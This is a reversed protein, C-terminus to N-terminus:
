SVRVRPDIFLSTAIGVAVRGRLTGVYAPTVTSETHLKFFSSNAADNFWDSSILSSTAQNAPSGDFAMRDTVISAKPDTGGGGQYSFEGWVENNKFANADGDRLGEITLTIPDTGAWGREFWPTYFPQSHTCSANTDIQWCVGNTGDYKAGDTIAYRGTVAVVSGLGNFYGFNYHVNTGACNYMWLEFSAKTNTASSFWTTTSPVKCNDIYVSLTGGNASNTLIPANDNAGSFDCGTCYVVCTDSTSTFISTITGSTSCNVMDVRCNSGIQINHASVTFQFTCNKFSTSSNGSTGSSNSTAIKSSTSTTGLWFHCNEYHKQGGDVNCTISKNTPGGNKVTFGLVASRNSGAFTVAYSTAGANGVFLTSGMPSYAYSGPAGTNTVSMLVVDQAAFTYTKDAAVASDATPISNKDVVVIDGASTAASLATAISQYATAWSTGLTNDGSQAVYWVAM